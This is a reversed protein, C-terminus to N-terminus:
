GLTTDEPYVIWKFDGGILLVGSLRYPIV